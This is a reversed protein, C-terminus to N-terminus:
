RVLQMSRGETEITSPMEGRRPGAEGLIWLGGSEAQLSLTPTRRKQDGDVDFIKVTPYRKNPEVCRLSQQAKTVEKLKQVTKLTGAEVVVGRKRVKRIAKMQWGDDKPMILSKLLKKTEESNVQKEDKPYVFVTREPPRPAIVKKGIKPRPASLM